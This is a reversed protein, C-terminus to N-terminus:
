KRNWPAQYEIGAIRFVDEESLAPLMAGRRVDTQLIKGALGPDIVEFGTSYPHWKLGRRQAATAILTNTEAGGTRCVLYNFWAERTTMFFDVPLGTEVHVALKNKAGWSQQGLSNLRKALIGKGIMDDLCADVLSGPKTFLGDPLEGIKPVCVIELDGVERRKRRVSGAMQLYYGGGEQEECCPYLPGFLSVGVAVAEEIAFRTKAKVANSQGAM